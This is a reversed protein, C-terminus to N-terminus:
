SWSINMDNQLKGTSNWATIAVYSYGTVDITNVTKNTWLKKSWNTGDNSVLVGKIDTNDLTLTKYQNDKFCLFPGKEGLLTYITKYM